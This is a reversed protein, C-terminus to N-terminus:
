DIMEEIVKDTIGSITAGSVSAGYIQEFRAAIEGTTLGECVAVVRSM